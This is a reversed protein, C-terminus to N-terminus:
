PKGEQPTTEQHWRQHREILSESSAQGSLALVTAACVPCIWPQIGGYNSELSLM